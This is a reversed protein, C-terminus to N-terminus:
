HRSNELKNMFIINKDTGKTHIIEYSHISSLEIREVSIHEHLFIKIRVSLFPEVKDMCPM